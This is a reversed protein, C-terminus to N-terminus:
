RRDTGTMSSGIIVVLAGIFAISWGAHPTIYPTIDYYDTAETMVEVLLYVFNGTLCLLSLVGLWTLLKKVLTGSLMFYGITLLTISAFVIMLILPLPDGAWNLGESDMLDGFDINVSGAGRCDDGACRATYWDLALAILMMIAGAAAVIVGKVAAPPISQAARSAGGTSIIRM